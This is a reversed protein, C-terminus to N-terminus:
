LLAVDGGDGGPAGHDGHLGFCRCHGGSHSGTRPFRQGEPYRFVVRVRAEALRRKSDVWRFPCTALRPLCM